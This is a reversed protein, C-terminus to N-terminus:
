LQAMWGREWERASVGSGQLDEGLGLGACSGSFEPRTREWRARKLLWCVDPDCAVLVSSDACGRSMAKGVIQQPEGTDTCDLRLRHPQCVFDVLGAGIGRSM